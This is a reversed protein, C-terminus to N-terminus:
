RANSKIFQSVSADKAMDKVLETLVNNIAAAIKENSAGFPGQINHSARFTKTNSSGNPLTVIVSIDASASISHRVSGESVDANLKNIVIIVDAAAPSGVMFGRAIMQKQLVEQMLFSLDRTPVLVDLKGNRNIEALTKSPRKDQSAINLSIPRMTPDAAPVSMTPEISLKNSPTACGSLLTLAFVACLINKIM